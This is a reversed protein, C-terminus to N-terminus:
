IKEPFRIIFGDRNPMKVQPLTKANMVENEGIIKNLALLYATLAYVENDTLTRPQQFPMARRIFDFVTTSYGWFNGITKTTDIGSAIPAGGVLVNGAPSGKGGEGHCFACKQAFIPAGQAATGSGAPLGTGDPLISIDWAAIEAESIRAGLGPSQALATGSLFIFLFTFRNLTSM